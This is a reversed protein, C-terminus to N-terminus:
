GYEDTRASHFPYRADDQCDAHCYTREGTHPEREFYVLPYYLPCEEHHYAHGACRDEQECSSYRCAQFLSTHRNGCYYQSENSQSECGHKHNSGRQFEDVRDGQQQAHNGDDDTDQGSQEQRRKANEPGLRALTPMLFGTNASTTYMTAITATKEPVMTNIQSEPATSAPLSHQKRRQRLGAGSGCLGYVGQLTDIERHWPRGDSRDEVM